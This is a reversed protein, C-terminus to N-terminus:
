FQNLFAMDNEYLLRMDTIGFRQLAIRDIGVGFAYGTYERPDIGCNALVQPHVMGCGLLEVWGTDKCVRCGGGKGNCIYCRADMEASPETFPFFSPRFRVQTDEGM